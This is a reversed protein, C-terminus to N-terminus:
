NFFNDPDGNDSTWGIQLVDFERQRAIGSYEAWPATKLEAKIGVQALDKVMLEAVKKGNTNYPRSESMYHLTMGFGDSLGAEKLLEKARTPNYVYDQISRNYGWMNPPIPNKAVQAFGRFIQRVYKKRDLAHHIARRVRVDDF